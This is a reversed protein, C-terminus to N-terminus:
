FYTLFLYTPKNTPQRHNTFLNGRLEPIKVFTKLEEDKGSFMKLYFKHQLYILLSLAFLLTLMFM